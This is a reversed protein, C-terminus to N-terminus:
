LRGGGRFRRRRRRGRQLAQPPVEESQASASDGGRATVAQPSLLFPSRFRGLRRDIARQHRRRRGRFRRRRRRQQRRRGRARQPGQPGRGPVPLPPRRPRLLVPKKLSLFLAISPDITHSRPTSSISFRSLSLLSSSSSWLLGEFVGERSVVDNTGKSAGDKRTRLRVFFGPPLAIGKQRQQPFSLPFRPPLPTSNTSLPFLSSSSSLPSLVAAGLLSSARKSRSFFFLRFRRKERKSKESKERKRKRERAKM